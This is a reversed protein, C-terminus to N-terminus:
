DCWREPWRGPRPWRGRPGVAVSLGLLRRQADSLALVGWPAAHVDAWTSSETVGGVTISHQRKGAADGTLLAASVLEFVVRRANVLLWEAEAEAYFDRGERQFEAVIMEEADRLLVVSRSREHDSLARPFRPELDKLSFLM